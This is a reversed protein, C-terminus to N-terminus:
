IHAIFLTLVAGVWFGSLLLVTSTAVAGRILHKRM